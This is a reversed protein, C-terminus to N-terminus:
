HRTRSSLVFACLARTKVNTYKYSVDQVYTRSDCLFSLYVCTCIYVNIISNFSGVNILIVDADTHYKVNCIPSKIDRSTLLMKGRCTRPFMFNFVQSIKILCFLIRSCGRGYDHRRTEGFNLNRTTNVRRNVTANARGTKRTDIPLSAICQM